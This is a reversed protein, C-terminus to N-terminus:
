RQASVDHQAFARERSAIEANPRMAEGFFLLHSRAHICHQDGTASLITPPAGLVSRCDVEAIHVSRFRDPLVVGARNM